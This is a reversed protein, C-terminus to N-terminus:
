TGGSGGLEKLRPNGIMLDRAILTMKVVFEWDKDKQERTLQIRAPNNDRGEICNERTWKLAKTYEEKDYIGEEIRRIFESMDVSENRMGLYDQFFDTNVISGAIGM